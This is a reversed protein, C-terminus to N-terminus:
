QPVLGFLEELNHERILANAAAKDGTEQTVLALVLGVASRPTGKPAVTALLERIRARAKAIQPAEGQVASTPLSKKRSALARTAPQKAVYEASPLAQVDPRAESCTASRCYLYPDSKSVRAGAKAAKFLPRGCACRPHASHTKDNM